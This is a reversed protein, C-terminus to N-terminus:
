RSLDVIRDARDKSLAVMRHRESLLNCFHSVAERCEVSLNARIVDRWFNADELCALLHARTLVDYFAVREDQFKLGELFSLLYTGLYAAAWASPLERLPTCGLFSPSSTDVDVPRIGVFTRWAAGGCVSAISKPNEGSPAPVASWAARVDAIVSEVDSMPAAQATWDDNM